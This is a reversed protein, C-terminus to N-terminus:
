NFVADIIASITGCHKSCSTAWATNYYITENRFMEYTKKNFTDTYIRGLDFVVSAKIIDYMASDRSDESYQTKLAIEFLAPSVNKYSSSALCELVASVRNPDSTNTPIGYLTYPYSTVSYYDEQEPDYKPIPLIGYNVNSASYITYVSSIESIQFLTKGDQFISVTNGNDLPVLYGENSFHFYNILQDIFNLTKESNEAYDDSLKLKGDSDEDIISLGAAFYLPDIFVHPVAFGFQDGNDKKGDYNTDNYVGYTMDFLTEFTWDNESVLEYPDELQYEELLDKNFAMCYTYLIYWTSIDGSCFYLADKITAKELLTAPWWPKTFDLYETQNMDYLLGMVACNAIAMSYGAVIDYREGTNVAAQLMTPFSQRSAFSIDTDNFEFTVGLREQVAENRSYIASDVVNGGSSEVYFEPKTSDEARNLIKITADGYNLEPVDDTIETVVPDTTTPIDGSGSVSPDSTSDGPGSNDACSALSLTLSLLMSFVLLLALLKKM